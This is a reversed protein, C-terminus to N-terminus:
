KEEVIVGNLQPTGILLKRIKDQDVRIKMVRMAAMDAEYKKRTEALAEDWGSPNEDVSFEEWCLLAEPGFEGEYAEKRQGFLIYLDM